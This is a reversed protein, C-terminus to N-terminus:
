KGRKIKKRLVPEKKPFSLFHILAVLGMANFEPVGVPPTPTPTPTPEPRAPAPYNEYGAMLPRYDRDTHM